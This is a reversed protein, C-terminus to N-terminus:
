REVVPIFRYSERSDKLTQVVTADFGYQIIGIRTKGRSVHFQNLLAKVFEKQSNFEQNAVGGGIAM